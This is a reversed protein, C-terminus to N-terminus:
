GSGGEKISSSLAPITEGVADTIIGISKYTKHLILTERCPTCSLRGGTTTATHQLERHAEM